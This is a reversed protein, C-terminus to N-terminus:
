KLVQGEFFRLAPTILVSNILHEINKQKQLSEKVILRCNYLLNNICVNSPIIFLVILKSMDSNHNKFSFISKFLLHM